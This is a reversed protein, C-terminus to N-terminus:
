EIAMGKMDWGADWGAGLALLGKFAAWKRWWVQGKDMVCPKYLQACGDVMESSSSSGSGGGRNRGEDRGEEGLLSM